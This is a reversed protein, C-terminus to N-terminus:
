KTEGNTITGHWHGISDFGISPVITLTEFTEGSIRQHFGEHPISEASKKVIEFCEQGPPIIPPWFSVALRKGRQTGCTPCPTHTCHPCLFSVGIYCEVGKAANSLNIWHPQWDILRSM